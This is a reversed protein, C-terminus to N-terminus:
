ASKAQQTTSTSTRFEFSTSKTIELEVFFVKFFNFFVIYTVINVQRRTYGSRTARIVMVPINLSIKSRQTAMTWAYTIEGSNARM